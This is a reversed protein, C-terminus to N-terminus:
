ALKDGVGMVDGHEIYFEILVADEVKEGKVVGYINPQVKGTTENLLLGCKVISANKDTEYKSVFNKKHSIKSYYSKVIKQMSPSLEELEVTSYIKIDIITGAFKSKVINKSGENLVEKNDDSLNSLLKNLDTDDFSTDFSILPDGINVHDGVNMMTYVNSNKGIIVPKCFTMKTECDNALKQTIMASDNYTDYSSMIAVKELAGVNMRIGNFKDDKFFEKHYAIIDDKKFKDGVKFTTALKNSLYFGGGSNKVIQPNLDIAQCKGSKYRAIMINSKEDYDIIEGSEEANIVFDSSLHFRTVEDFGNAILVPCANNVPIVARSQKIAV